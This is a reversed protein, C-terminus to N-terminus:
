KLPQLKLYVWDGAEFSREIRSKDAYLKMREKAKKLNEKVPDEVNRKGGLLSGEVTNSGNEYAGIGM